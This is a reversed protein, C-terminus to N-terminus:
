KDTKVSWAGIICANLFVSDMFCSGIALFWNTSIELQVLSILNMLPRAFETASAIDLGGPTGIPVAYAVGFDAAVCRPGLSCISTASVVIKSVTSWWCIACCCSVHGSTCACLAPFCTCPRIRCSQSNLGFTWKSQSMDVFRARGITGM